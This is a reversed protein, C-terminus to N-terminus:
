NQTWQSKQPTADSRNQPLRWRAHSCCVMIQRPRQNLLNQLRARGQSLLNTQIRLIPLERLLTPLRNIRCRRMSTNHHNTLCRPTGRLLATDRPIVRAAHLQALPHAHRSLLEIVGLQNRQQRHIEIVRTLARVAIVRRTLIERRLPMRLKQLEHRVNLQNQQHPSVRLLVVQITHVGWLRLLVQRLRNTRPLRIKRLKQRQHM